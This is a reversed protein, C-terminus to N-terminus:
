LQLELVMFVVQFRIDEEVLNVEQTFFLIYLRDQRKYVDGETMPVPIKIIMTAVCILAMVLATIVINKVTYNSAQMKREM